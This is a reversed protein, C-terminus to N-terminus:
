PRPPANWPTRNVGSAWLDTYQAASIEAQVARWRTPDAPAQMLSEVAEASRRAHETGIYAMMRGGSDLTAGKEETAMKRIAHLEEMTPDAFYNHVRIREADTLGPIVREGNAERFKLAFGELTALSAPSHGETEALRLATVLRGVPKSLLTEDEADRLVRAHLRLATYIQNRDTFKAAVLAAGANGLSGGMELVGHVAAAAGRATGIGGGRKGADVAAARLQERDRLMALEGRYRLRTDPDFPSKRGMLLGVIPSSNLTSVTALNALLAAPLSNKAGGSGMGPGGGGGGSGSPGQLASAVRNAARNNGSDLSGALRRLQVIAGLMVIGALVFVTMVQNRAAHFIDGLFLCYGGLFVTYGAMRGASMWTDVINRVLFTQTPGYIFGGAAFGLIAMIAHYISNLASWVIKCGLYTGFLLVITGFILLLLGTTVQGFGPDTAKAHASSDGCARMAEVVRADDGTRVTASWAARCRPSEDVVHGFNWVQLPRRVFNDALTGQIGSVVTRPNPDSDGNLGAAISVGVDRGQALLGHSSLVDALPDALYTPGLVAVGVMTAVQIAAKAHHGRVVFWAVFFAGVAAATTLVMPTAVQDALRDAAGTWARGFVDLWQFTLAYSIVWLALVVIAMYGAFEVGLVLALTTKYPNLVNGHDTVFMYDAMSVGSSDRIEMWSLGDIASTGAVVTSNQATAVAGVIGPIVLLVAVVVLFWM